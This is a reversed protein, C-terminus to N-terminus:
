KVVVESEHALNLNGSIIVTDGAQLTAGKEPHAQVTYSASNEGGTQVYTWFAKGGVYKFLVEQNQRLVVASKPVVLQGPVEKEVLVKVNMGEMLPGPNKVRAKVLVLGHKDILPNIESIYGRFNQELSFPIVKVEDGLNVETVESEVLHFEVEFETDDILTCFAEGASVQEYIKQSVNAVKGTFPAKLVTAALENKILKLERQAATYGSRVLAGEMVISPVKSSDIESYGQTMLVDRLELHANSLKTKAQELRLQQEFPDLMAIVGGKNVTQGNRVSLKQLQGGTRFKLESKRVAKLIGNSVLEKHFTTTKLVLTDVVNEQPVFARKETTVDESRTTNCSYLSSLVFLVPLFQFVRSFFHSILTHTM